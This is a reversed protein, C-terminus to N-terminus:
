SDVHKRRSRIEGETTEVETFDESRYNNWLSTM